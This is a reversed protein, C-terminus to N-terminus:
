VVHACVRFSGVLWGTLEVWGLGVWGLGVWCCVHIYVCARPNRSSSSSSSSSSLGCLPPSVGGCAADVKTESGMEWIEWDGGGADYARVRV